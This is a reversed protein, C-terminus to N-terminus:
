ACCRKSHAEDFDVNSYVRQVDEHEELADLFALVKATDATSPRVTQKAEMALQASSSACVPEGRARGQRAMCRAGARHRDRSPEGFRVDIVGDVLAKETLADESLGASRSRDIRAVRVDLRRQRDRGANGENRSFLFRLRAPRAIATTPRRM